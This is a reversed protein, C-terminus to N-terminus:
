TGSSAPTLIDVPTLEYGILDQDLIKCIQPPKAPYPTSRVVPIDVDYWRRADFPGAFM